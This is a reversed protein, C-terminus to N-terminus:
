GENGSNAAEEQTELPDVYNEDWKERDWKGQPWVSDQEKFAEPALCGTTRLDDGGRSDLLLFLARLKNNKNIKRM